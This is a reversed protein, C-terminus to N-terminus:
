KRIRKSGINEDLRRPHQLETEMISVLTTGAQNHGELNGVVIRYTEARLEAYCVSRPAVVRVINADTQGKDSARRTVECYLLWFSRVQWTRLTESASECSEAEFCAHGEGAALLWVVVVFINRGRRALTVDM